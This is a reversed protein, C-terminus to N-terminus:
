AARQAVRPKNYCRPRVAVVESAALLALEDSLADCLEEDIVEGTPVAFHPGDVDYSVDIVLSGDTTDVWLTDDASGRVVFHWSILESM